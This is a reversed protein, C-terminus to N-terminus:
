KRKLSIQSLGGVVSFEVAVRWQVVIIWALVM